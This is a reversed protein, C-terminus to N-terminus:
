NDLLRNKYAFNILGVVSNSGTKHMLNKRHTEVTRKSIHLRKAIEKNPLDEAIMKLVQSERETLEPKESERGIGSLLKTNLEDSVFISGGIVTSVAKLLQDHSDKKMVYGNIGAKIADRVFETEDHMSLMIIKIEPLTNRVRRTLEMGDMGPLNLDTILLDISEKQLVDLANEANVATGIVQYNEEKELLSLLGELFIAHDDVLFVKLKKSSSM